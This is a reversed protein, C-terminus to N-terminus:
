PWRSDGDARASPLSGTAISPEPPSPIRVNPAYSANSHGWGSARQQYSHDARTRPRFRQSNYGNAAITFTTVRRM